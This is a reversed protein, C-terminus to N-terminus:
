NNLTPELQEDKKTDLSQTIQQLEELIVEKENDPKDLRQQQNSSM